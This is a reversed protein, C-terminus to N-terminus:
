PGGIAFERNTEASVQRVSAGITFIREEVRVRNLSSRVCADPGINGSHLMFPRTAVPRTVRVTRLANFQGPPMLERHLSANSPRKGCRRPSRCTYRANAHDTVIMPVDILEPGFNQVFV